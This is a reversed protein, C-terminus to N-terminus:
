FDEVVLSRVASSIDEDTPWSALHEPRSCGEHSDAFERWLSLAACTYVRTEFVPVYKICGHTQCNIWARQKGGAGTCSDFWVKHRSMDRGLSVWCRQFLMSTVLPAALPGLHVDGEGLLGSNRGVGEDDEIPVACYEDFVTSKCQLMYWANNQTRGAEVVAPLQEQSLSLLCRYYGDPRGHSIDHIGKQLSPSM